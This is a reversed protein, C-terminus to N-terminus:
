IEILMVKEMCFYYNYNKKTYIFFYVYSDKSLFIKIGGSTPKNM